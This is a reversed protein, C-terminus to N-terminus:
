ECTLTARVICSQRADNSLSVFEVVKLRETITIHGLPLSQFCMLCTLKDNTCHNFMVKLIKFKDLVFFLPIMVSFMYLLEIFSFILAVYNLLYALLLEDICTLIFLCNNVISKLRICLYIYTCTHLFVSRCVLRYKIISQTFTLKQYNKFTINM